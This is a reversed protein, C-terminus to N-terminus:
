VNAQVEEAFHKEEEEMRSLEMEELATKHNVEDEEEDGDEDGSGDGDDQM